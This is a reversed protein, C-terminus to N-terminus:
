DVGGADVAGSGGDVTILPADPPPAADIAPPAADTEFADDPVCKNADDGATEDWIWGSACSEDRFACHSQVCKGYDTQAPCENDRSCVFEDTDTLGCSVGFVAGFLGLGLAIAVVVWKGAM